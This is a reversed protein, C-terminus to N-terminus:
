LAGVKMNCGLWKWSRANEQLIWGGIWSFLQIFCGLKALSWIGMGISWTWTPSTLFIWPRFRWFPVVLFMPVCKKSLNWTRFQVHEIGLMQRLLEPFKHFKMNHLQWKYENTMNIIGQLERLQWAQLGAAKYSNVWNSNGPDSVTSVICVINWVHRPFIAYNFKQIEEWSCTGGM